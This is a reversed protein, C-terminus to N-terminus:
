RYFGKIAGWTTEQVPTQEGYCLISQAGGIQVGGPNGGFVTGMDYEYHCNIVRAFGCDASAVVNLYRAATSTQNMYVLYGAHDYWDHCLNTSSAGCSAPEGAYSPFSMFGPCAYLMMFTLTGTGTSNVGFVVGLYGGYNACVTGKSPCIPRDLSGIHIPVAYFNYPLRAEFCPLTGVTPQQHVCVYGPVPGPDRPNEEFRYVELYLRPAENGAFVISPIMLVALVTLLNKM